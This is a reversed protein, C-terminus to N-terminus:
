QTHNMLTPNVVKLWGMAGQDEHELVHCHMITKGVFVSSTAANLDFRLQCNESIVDYFEGDEYDGCTGDAQIHYIHLHFPHQRAGNLGWSQVKDAPLEFTPVMHDFKSGNITRAGMRVTESNLQNNPVDRLDRLYTPRNSKWTNGGNFPSVSTDSPLTSDAYVNAVVTNAVTITADDQCRVALDARSAGTLNVTNTPIAKPVETRWVGDRAM